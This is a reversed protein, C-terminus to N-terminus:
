RRARSLVIAAARRRVARPTVGSLGSLVKYPVGNVHVVRGKAAAELAEAAVTDADMWVFGPLGAIRETAGAVEHFETRTLGPCVATVTVGSGRLEEALGESFNTVFAKTAAYVANGPGPQDGSVSSVNLVTGRGERVMRGVAAHTLRLLASVNVEVQVAAAAYPQEWFAGHAGLGANNVLLDVPADTDALRAAVRELDDANTLDAVVVEVNCVPSQLGDGLSRLRDGRRAVLVLDVGDSALRRAIAEGIGSSAGTVLARRWRAM